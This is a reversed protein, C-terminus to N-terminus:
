EEGGRELFDVIAGARLRIILAVGAKRMFAREEAVIVAGLADRMSRPTVSMVLSRKDQEWVSSGKRTLQPGGAGNTAFFIRDLFVGRANLANRKHRCWRIRGKQALACINVMHVERRYTDHLFVSHLLLLHENRCVWAKAM